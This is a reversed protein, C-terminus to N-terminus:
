ICLNKLQNLFQIMSIRIKVLDYYLSSFREIESPWVLWMKLM